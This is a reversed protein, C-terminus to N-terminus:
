SRLRELDRILESALIPDLSDFTSLEEKQSWGSRFARGLTIEGLTQEPYEDVMGVIIGPDLTLEITRATDVRKDYTWIGGGDQAPGRRWGINALGMVKGTPVKAGKWRLLEKATREADSLAYTDRGLQPFPQLLEYDALLQGFAAAQDAPLELAHPLGVRYQEGEPLTFPDDDATTYEGDEAVRFCAQLAGGYSAVRTEADAGEGQTEVPIAYVGWVLRRVLHRVLPHGALFQAFVDPSWRRRECMAVELRLVQQSAITRADKKLLKFREVAAAALAADDTKKPKPLDPLRAGAKGGLWERVYPKLAEDFGVKFARPGFDLVLSGGDDLGLDPALRDELEEPSLGRAEAIATIKERAKDQLGKFKVKQAIGNLLMLAVDSGIAALVDLGTVARAHAAEGPWARIFPTLKRATDDNGFIGLTLLAWNEKSGAGGNLWASFCDWAFDALSHPTCADKVQYLGAYVEENTPFAMMTGLADLATDPLAKGNHLEPRHWGSPKWFAPLAPRKNPYRDLPSESLMAHLAPLVEPQGYRGAVEDLLAGHGISALYRLSSAACDRAENPKGLAPAILACAAHEPFRKLWARGLARLSKLRAFARAAIPALEVAGFHLAIGLNENPASAIRALVGPFAALGWTAAVFETGNSSAETAATNWFPIGLAPPMHAVAHGDLSYYFWRETKKEGLMARWGAILADPDQKAIADRMAKVAAQYAASPNHVYRDLRNAMVDPSRAAEGYHDVYWGDLKRLAEREGENWHEIPALPLPALQLPAAAKKKPQEWPVRALVEPLDDVTAVDTPGALRAQVTDLLANPAPELWPRLAAPLAPDRRVLELLTPMLLGQDKVNGGLLRALAATAAAPWREVALNFRALAPKSTSAVRALADLAEPTGIRALADGAEDSAAGPALWRVADLGHELLITAVMDARSWFNDYSDSKVKRAQALAAPDTATLQLWHVAPPPTAGGAGLHAIVDHTMDPLDPFLLALGAQHVADLTGLAARVQGACADYVDQPAAALHARLRWEGNSIPTSYYHRPTSATRHHLRVINAGDRVYQEDVAYRLAELLVEVAHLLGARMVIHDVLKAGLEEQDSRYRNLCLTLLIADSQATGIPAADALSRWTADFADRLDPDSHRVDPEMSGSFMVRVQQWSRVPDIADVPQPHRRTARAVRRTHDAPGGLRIPDGQTLWPPVAGAAPVSGAAVPARGAVADRERGMAIAIEKADRNLTSTWSWILRTDALYRAVQAAALEGIGHARRIKAPTLADSAETLTGDAIQARIAEFAREIQRDIDESPAAPQAAASPADDAAPPAADETAPAAVARAATAPATKAPTAKAPATGIAAGAAAGTEAYGKGTKETILKQMAAGAKAADAFNKTQSQGATGIRGWRINLDTGSQEIEWFKASKDDTYEFRRM